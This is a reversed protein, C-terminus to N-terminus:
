KGWFMDGIPINKYRGVAFPNFNAKAFLYWAGGSLAIKTDAGVWLIDAGYGTGRNSAYPFGAGDPYRTSLLLVKEMQDLYYEKEYRKGAVGFALAMQGTGEPWVTDKDEDFCYGTITNGLTATKTTLFRQASTLASVPYNQFILYSWPHLDLAYLYPPNTPWSVLNKDIKDWRDKELFNLTKRHFDTYGVIANFADINGETVKYNMLSNDANYGALLGGDVDQLNMLWQSLATSLNDYTKKGTYAKYNNLAILLWANDGMWRHRNPVGNRDRLQAFGGVGSNLETDIRANFFDFIKEAKPYDGKMIYVLAALANDYLSVVNGNEASELLGNPLQQADFWNFIKIETTGKIRTGVFSIGETAANVTISIPFFTYEKALPTLIREGKLNNVSWYGLSDTKISAATSYYIEVGEIGLGAHDTVRGSVTYPIYPQGPVSPSENDSCSLLVLLFFHIIFSIRM